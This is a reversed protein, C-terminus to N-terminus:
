RSEIQEDPEDPSAASEPRASIALRPRRPVLEDIIASVEPDDLHICAAVLRVFIGDELKETPVGECAKVCAATRRDMSASAFDDAPKTMVLRGPANTSNADLRYLLLFRFDV